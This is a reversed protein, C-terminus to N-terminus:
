QKVREIWDEFSDIFSQLFTKTGENNLNANEDFLEHINAIYAEPTQMLIVNLFVVAQRLHHNAGFGGLTGGATTVVAGPKNDWISQGYPQSGVDIANKLSAPITRNYEPTVFLVAECESIENRFKTWSVPTNEDELDPNYLELQSIDVIKAEYNESVMKSLSISLKKTHSDARLSGVLIAIKVKSM